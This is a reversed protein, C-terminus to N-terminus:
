GLEPASSPVVLADIVSDPSRRPVVLAGVLKQRHGGGAGQHPLHSKPAM